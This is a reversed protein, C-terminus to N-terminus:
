HLSFDRASQRNWYNVALAERPARPARPPRLVAIVALIWFFRTDYYDGSFNSAVGIYIAAVACGIQEKSVARWPTGERWFWFLALAFLALAGIGSEAALALMYNHPYVFGFNAYYSDLGGGLIPHDLFFSWAWSMLMPRSSFDGQQIGSMSYRWEALAAVADGLFRWVAWAVLSAVVATAILTVVRRRRLFLLFFALAAGVLSVLGGRSGSLMAAAALLPLPILLLWRRHVVALAIAAIIGLCTVRVFVNPGGGFASYRGQTQPGAILGAVAYVIGAILMLALFVRAARAPEAAALITAALVLVLMAVLDWTLKGVRAEPPAWLGTILQLGILFCFFTVMRPWHLRIGRASAGAYQVLAGFGLLTLGPVRLDTLGYTPLDLRGPSFRGALAVVFLATLLLM